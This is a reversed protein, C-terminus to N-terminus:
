QNSIVQAWGLRLLLRLRVLVAARRRRREQVARAAAAIARQSAGRVALEVSELRRQELQEFAAAESAAVAALQAGLRASLEERSQHAAAAAQKHAEAEAAAAAEAREARARARAERAEAGGLADRMAAADARAEDLAGDTDRSAAEAAALGEQSPTATPTPTAEAYGGDDRQLNPNPLRTVGM